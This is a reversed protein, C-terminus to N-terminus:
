ETHPLPNAIGVGEGKALIKELTKNHLNRALTWVLKLVRM